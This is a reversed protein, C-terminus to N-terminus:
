FPRLTAVVPEIFCYKGLNERTECTVCQLNQTMMVIDLEKSREYSLDFSTFTTGLSGLFVSGSFLISLNTERNMM